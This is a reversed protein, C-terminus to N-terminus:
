KQDAKSTAMRYGIGLVIALILLWWYWTLGLVQKTSSEEPTDTAVSTNSTDESQTQLVSGQEESTLSSETEPEEENAGTSTAVYTRITLGNGNGGPTSAAPQKQQEKDTNTGLVNGGGAPPVPNDITVAWLDSWPGENGALDVAKVRWYYTGDTVDTTTRSTDTLTESVLPALSTNTSGYSEYVYYSVDPDSSEWTQTVSTGDQTTGDAPSLLTVAPAISDYTYTVSESWDSYNGANDIARVRITFDGQVGGSLSQNRFTRNGAVLRYDTTPNGNRVYVYEIEYNAIGTADTAPTWEARITSTNFIDGTTPSTITVPAPKTTDLTVNWIPSWASVNGSADKARVQWYWTGDPAGVSHITNSPLTGSQWLGTTLVGDVQASNMSSQFEYTVATIDTSADWTFWFNNTNLIDNHPQGNTPASPATSDYTIHCIPTWDSKNGAADVARVKFGNTGDATPTWNHMYQNTTVVQANIGITNGNYSTYEYHDADPVADWTPYLVQRTTIAGCALVEGDDKAVRRLNTPVAPPTTDPEFDYTTIEDSTHAVVKDLYGALGVDSANSQGVSVAFMRVYSGAPMGALTAPCAAIRDGRRTVQTPTDTATFSATTFATTSGTSPVYDFRCDYFTNSDDITAYVNLYFDDADSVSGNGAILFDYSISKIDVVPKRIFNEAIFKDSPNAGIPLVYISGNGISAKDTTFEFPTDTDTDRNFLWGPQNEGAATDGTVVETAQVPPLLSEYSPRNTTSFPVKNSVVNGAPTVVTVYAETPVTTADWANNTMPFWSSSGADTYTREQIPFPATVTGSAGGNILTAIKAPTMHKVVDGGAAREITVFADTADIFNAPKFEVFVGAYNTADHTTLVEAIVAPETGTIAFTKQTLVLPLVSGVSSFLLVLTASVSGFMRTLKGAQKKGYRYVM